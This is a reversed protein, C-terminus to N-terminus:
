GMNMERKVKELAIHFLILSLSDGKRRGTRVPIQEWNITGTRVKAYTEM